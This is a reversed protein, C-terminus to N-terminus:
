DSLLASVRLTQMWPWLTSERGRWSSWSLTASRAPPLLLAPTCLPDTTALVHCCLPVLLASCSGLQWAAALLACCSHRPAVPPRGWGCM